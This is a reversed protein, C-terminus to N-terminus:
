EPAEYHSRLCLRARVLRSRISDEAVGLVLGARAYTWGNVWCLIVADYQRRTLLRKLDADGIASRESEPADRKAPM